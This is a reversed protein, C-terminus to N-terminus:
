IRCIQFIEMFVNTRDYVRKSNENAIQYCHINGNRLRGVLLGDTTWIEIVHQTSLCMEGLTRWKRESTLNLEPTDVPTWTYRAGETQLKSIVAKGILEKGGDAYYHKIKVELAHLKM